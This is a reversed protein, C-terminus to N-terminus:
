TYNKKIIAAVVVGYAIARAVYFWPSSENPRESFMAMVRTCAEVVFALAFALFLLDRTRHWFRVFFLSCTLSATVVVGALFGEMMLSM